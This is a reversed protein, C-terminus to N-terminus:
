KNLQFLVLNSHSLQGIITVTNLDILVQNLKIKIKRTETHNESGSVDGGYREWIFAHM